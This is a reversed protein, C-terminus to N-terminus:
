KKLMEQFQKIKEEIKNIARDYRAKDTKLKNFNEITRVDEELQWREEAKDAKAVANKM